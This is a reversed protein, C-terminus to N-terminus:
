FHLAYYYHNYTRVCFCLTKVPFTKHTIALRSAHEIEPAICLIYHGRADCVKANSNFSTQLRPRNHKLESYRKSCSINATCNMQSTGVAKKLHQPTTKKKNWLENQLYRRIDYMIRSQYATNWNDCEIKFKFLYFLYPFAKSIQSYEFVIWIM